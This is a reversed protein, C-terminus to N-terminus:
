GCLSEFNGLRINEGGREGKERERESVCVCVCVRESERWTTEWGPCSNRALM